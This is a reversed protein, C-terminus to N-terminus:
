VHWKPIVPFGSNHLVTLATWVGILMLCALESPKVPRGFCTYRYDPTYKWLRKAKRAEHLDTADAEGVFVVPINRKVACVEAAARSAAEVVISRDEHTQADTWRIVWFM